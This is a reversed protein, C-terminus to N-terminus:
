RGAKQSKAQAKERYMASDARAILGQMSEGAEWQAIGISASVKVKAEKAGAAPKITYEGLVWKQVREVQSKATNIDCDLVLIFEDGGWRGVIDTSRSNSRLEESFQQLLNDGAPHGYTDNVPKFRDLDLIVVSFVQQHAIRWEIREEIKRRNALGTLSDQSALQEVAKLKTEYTSVEAQLHAVSERSDQAMQEVYTKLENAQQVLTSRVHALDELDAITQLQARFESFHTAYRHDREGMSEATRALVILLEKVENTKTKFYEATCGGWQQLQEEVQTETEKVLSATINASLRNELSAMTQQLDSGAAPFARAGSKGMALLASRYSELIVSSLENLEPKPASPKGPDMDLYKKLSIVTENEQLPSAKLILFLHPIQGSVLASRQGRCFSSSKEPRCVEVHGSM